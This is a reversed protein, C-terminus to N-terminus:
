ARFGVRFTYSPSYLSALASCNMGRWFGRGDRYLANEASKVAVPSFILKHGEFYLFLDPYARPIASIRDNGSVM